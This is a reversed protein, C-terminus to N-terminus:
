GKEHSEFMGQHSVAKTSPKGLYLCDTAGPFVIPLPIAFNDGTGGFSSGIPGVFGIPFLWSLFSLLDLYISKWEATGQQRIILNKNSGFPKPEDKQENAPSVERGGSFIKIFLMFVICDASSWEDCLTILVANDM